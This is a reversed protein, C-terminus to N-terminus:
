TKMYQDLKEGSLDELVRVLEQTRQEVPQEVDELLEALFPITEPLLMLYEERLKNVLQAVAELALLRTRASPSRTAMLLQHNLPKWFVDSGATVAFQTVCAVAATGAIDLSVHRGPIVSADLAKDSCQLELSPLVAEPPEADLQAVLVPLLRDFKEQDLFEVTDHLFFLHLSRLVKLRLVWSAELQAPSTDGAAQQQKHKKRKKSPRTAGGDGGLHHVSIDMLYRLYPVFVSRLRQALGSVASFLATVRGTNGRSGDAGADTGDAQLNGAWELLRLFLPKFRSESLKMVLALMAQVAASEIAHHTAGGAGAFSGAQRSDLAKLLFSFLSEHYTAATKTDMGNATAAVMKLLAIASAAAGAAPGKGAAAVETVLQWQAFLPELLLRPPITAPLQERISAALDSCDAPTCSLVYPQLLLQLLQKLYPSLFAGVSTVLADVAALGSALELAAEERKIDDLAASQEIDLGEDESDSAGQSGDEGGPAAGVAAQAKTADDLVAAVAAPLHPLAKSGLARFVCALCVLASSRVVPQPDSVAGIVLRMCRLLPEPQLAGCRRAVSDVAVLALQRTEPSVEPPVEAAAAGDKSSKRKKGATKSQQASGDSPLLFSGLHDCIQAAAASLQERRQDRAAQPLLELDEFDRSM